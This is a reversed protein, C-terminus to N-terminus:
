GLLFFCLFIGFIFIVFFRMTKLWGLFILFRHFSLFTHSHSYLIGMLRSSSYILLLFFINMMGLFYRALVDNRFIDRWFITFDTHNDGKNNM